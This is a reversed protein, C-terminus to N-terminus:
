FPLGLSDLGMCVDSSPMGTGGGGGFLGSLMDLINGCILGPPCDDSQLPIIGVECACSGGPLTAGGGLLEPPIPSSGGLFQEIFNVCDNGGICFATVDDCQGGKDYCYGTSTDCALDYGTQGSNCDSDNSCGGGPPTVTGGVCVYSAPDCTQSDNCDSDDICQVCYFEGGVEVCAPYPDVCTACVDDVCTHSSLDCSGVACHDNVLCEVCDGEYYYPTSGECEVADALCINADTDCTEGADCHISATCEVCTADLCIPTDGSCEPDCDNTSPVCDLPDTSYCCTEGQYECVMMDSSPDLVCESGQVCAIENCRPACQSTGNSSACAAGAGCEWDETCPDCLNLAPVCNGTVDCADGEPCGDKQCGECSNSLPACTSSTCSFGTACDDSNECPPLCSNGGVMPLCSWTDECDDATACPACLGGNGVPPTDADCTATEENCTFGVECAPDCVDPSTPDQCVGNDCVLGEACEEDGACPLEPTDCPPVPCDDAQSVCTGKMCSQGEPCPDCLACGCQVATCVGDVCSQNGDPCDAASGCAQIVCADNICITGSPCQSDGSCPTSTDDEACAATLVLSVFLLARLLSRIM